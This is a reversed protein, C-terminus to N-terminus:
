RRRSKIIPAFRRCRMSLTRSTGDLSMLGEVVQEAGTDEPTSATASSGEIQSLDISGKLELIIKQAGKKGLGPAKALATADGDAM